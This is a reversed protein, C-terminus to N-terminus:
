QTGGGARYMGAGLSTVEARRFGVELGLGMRGTRGGSMRCGQGGWGRDEEM